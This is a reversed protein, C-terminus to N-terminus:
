KNDVKNDTFWIYFDCVLSISRARRVATPPAGPLVRLELRLECMGLIVESQVPMRM